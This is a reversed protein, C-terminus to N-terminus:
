IVRKACLLGCEREACQREPTPGCLSAFTAFRLTLTQHAAVSFPGRVISLDWVKAHHTYGETRAVIWYVSIPPRRTVAAHAREGVWLESCNPDNGKGDISSQRPSMLATRVPPACRRESAIRRWRRAQPRSLSLTLSLSVISSLFVRDVVLVVPFVRCSVVYRLKSTQLKWPLAFGSTAGYANNARAM